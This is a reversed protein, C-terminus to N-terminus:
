LHMIMRWCRSSHKTCCTPSLNSTLKTKESVTNYWMQIWGAPGHSGRSALLVVTQFLCIWSARGFALSFPYQDPAMVLHILNCLLTPLLAASLILRSPPPSLSSFLSVFSLLSLLYQLLRGFYIGRPGSETEGVRKMSLGGLLGTCDSERADDQDKHM